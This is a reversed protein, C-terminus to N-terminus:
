QWAPRSTPMHGRAAPRTPPSVQQGDKDHGATMEVTGAKVDEARALVTLAIAGSLLVTGIERTFMVYADLGVHRHLLSRFQALGKVEQLQM